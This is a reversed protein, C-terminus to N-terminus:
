SQGVALRDWFGAPQFVPDARLVPLGVLRLIRLQCRDLSFKALTTQRSALVARFGAAFLSYFYTLHVDDRVSM